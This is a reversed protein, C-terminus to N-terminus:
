KTINLIPRSYQQILITYKYVGIYFGKRGVIMMLTTESNIRSVQITKKFDAIDIGSPTPHDEPHTHWEGLYVEIGESIAFRTNIFTQASKASRIFNYRNRKDYRTPVSCGTVRIEGDYIIGTLVGGSEPDKFGIQIYRIMKMLVEETIVIKCGVYDLEIAQLM